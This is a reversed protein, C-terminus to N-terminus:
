QDWRFDILEQQSRLLVDGDQISQRQTGGNERWNLTVPSSSTVLCVVHGVLTAQAPLESAPLRLDELGFGNWMGPHTALVPEEVVAPRVGDRTSVMTPRDPM